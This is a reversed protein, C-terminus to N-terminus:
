SSIFNLSHMNDNQEYDKTKGDDLFMFILSFIYTHLLVLKASLYKHTHFKTEWLKPYLITQILSCSVSSFISSVLPAVHM